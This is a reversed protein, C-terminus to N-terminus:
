LEERPFGPAYWAHGMLCTLGRSPAIKTGRPVNRGVRDTGHEVHFMSAHSRAVPLRVAM